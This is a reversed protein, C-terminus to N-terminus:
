GITVRVRRQGHVESRVHPVNEGHVRRLHQLMNDRRSFGNQRVRNCNPFECDIFEPNLNHAVKYHRKFANRNLPDHACGDELCVITLARGRGERLCQHRTSRLRLPTLILYLHINLLTPTGYVYIGICNIGCNFVRTVEEIEDAVADDNQLPAQPAQVVNVEDRNLPLNLEIHGEGGNPVHGNHQHEPVHAVAPVPPARAGWHM